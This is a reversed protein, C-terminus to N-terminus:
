RKVYYEPIKAQRDNNNSRKPVSPARQGNRVGIRSSIRRVITVNQKVLAVRSRRRNSVEAQSPNQRGLPPASLANPQAAVVPPDNLLGLARVLQGLPRVPVAVEIKIQGRRTAIWRIFKALPTTIVWLIFTLVKWLIQLIKWVVMIAEWIVICVFCSCGLLVLVFAAIVVKGPNVLLSYLFAGEKMIGDTKQIAHAMFEDIKSAAQTAITRSITPGELLIQSSQSYLMDMLHQCLEETYLVLIERVELESRFIIGQEKCCEFIKSAVMVKETETLKCEIKAIIAALVLCSNDQHNTLYENLTNTLNSHNPTSIIPELLFIVIISVFMKYKFFECRFFYRAFM